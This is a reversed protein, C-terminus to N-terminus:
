NVCSTKKLLYLILDSLELPEETEFLVNKFKHIHTNTWSGVKPDKIFIIQKKSDIRKKTDALLACVRVGSKAFM